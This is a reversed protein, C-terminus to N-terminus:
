VVLNFRTLQGAVAVTRTVQRAHLYLVACVLQIIALRDDQRQLVAGDQVVLPGQVLILVRRQFIHQRHTM